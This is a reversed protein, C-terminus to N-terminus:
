VDKLISGEYVGDIEINHLKALQIMSKCTENRDDFCYSFHFNVKDSDINLLLLHNKAPLVAEEVDSDHEWSLKVSDWDVFDQKNKYNVIILNSNSLVIKNFDERYGVFIIVGIILFIIAVIILMFCIALISVDASDVWLAYGFFGFLLAMFLIIIGLILYTLSVGLVVKKENKICLEMNIGGIYLFLPM